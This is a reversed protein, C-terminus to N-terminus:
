EFAAIVRAFSGDAEINMPLAIINFHKCNLLSHLNTLNEIILIDKNMLMKHIFFPSFDPSPMDMGVMAIGIDILSQAFQVTFEPHDTYYISEHFLADRGTYILLIDNKQLSVDALLDVDIIKRGCADVLKGKGIFTSIPFDCIKKGEPIMHGPADIHTGVHLNSHIIHNSIGYVKLADISKLTAISDGPYVPMSNNFCHTLDIYKM